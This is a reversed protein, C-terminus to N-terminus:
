RSYEVWGPTNTGGAYIWLSDGKGKIPFSTSYSGTTVYLKLYDASWTGEAIQRSDGTGGSYGEFTGDSYFLWQDYVGMRAATSTGGADLAVGTVSWLGILSLETTSLGSYDGEICGSCVLASIMVALLLWKNM